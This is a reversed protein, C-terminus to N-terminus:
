KKKLRNMQKNKGLSLGLYAIIKNKKMGKGTSISIDSDALAKYGMNMVGNAAYSYALPNIGTFHFTGSFTESSEFDFDSKFKFTISSIEKAELFNSTKSFDVAFYYFNNKYENPVKIVNKVNNDLQTYTKVDNNTIIITETAEKGLTTAYKVEFEIKDTIALLDPCIAYYVAGFNESVEVVNGEPISYSVSVPQKIAFKGLFTVDSM